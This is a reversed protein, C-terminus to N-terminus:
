KWLFSWRLHKIPNQIRRHSFSCDPPEGLIKFFPDLMMFEVFNHLSVLINNLFVLFLWSKPSMSSRALLHRWYMAINQLQHQWLSVMQDTFVFQYFCIFIKKKRLLLISMESSNIAVFQLKYDKIINDLYFISTASFLGRLGKVVLTGMM